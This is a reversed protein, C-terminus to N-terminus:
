VKLDTTISVSRVVVKNRSGIEKWLQDTAGNSRIANEDGLDGLENSQKQEAEKRNLDLVQIIEENLANLLSSLFEEADEQKGKLCENNIRGLVDYICKPEFPEVRPLDAFSISSGNRYRKIVQESPMFHTFFRAFSDLIPTSTQERFLYPLDGLERMFNYFPPCCLLAQLTANIYCYNGHNAFGRPILFPLSHKGRYDKLKRALKRAVSDQEASIVTRNNGSEISASFNNRKKRSAESSAVTAASSASLSHEFDKNNFISASDTALDSQVPKSVISLSKARNSRFLDAWSRAGGNTDSDVKEQEETLNATTPEIEKVLEPDVETQIEDTVEQEAEREIEHDAEQKLEEQIEKEVSTSKKEIENERILIPDNSLEDDPENYESGNSVNELQDVPQNRQEIDGPVNESQSVFSKSTPENSNSISLSELAASKDFQNTAQDASADTFSEVVDERENSESEDENDENFFKYAPADSRLMNENYEFGNAACDRPDVIIHQPYTSHFQAKVQPDYENAHNHEEHPQQPSPPPTALSQNSSNMHVSAATMMPESPNLQLHTPMYNSHPPATHYFQPPLPVPFYIMHPQSPFAHNPPLQAPLYSASMFAAQQAHAASPYGAPVSYGAPMTSVSPPLNSNPAPALPIHPSQGNIMSKNSSHIESNHMMNMMEMMQAPPLQMELHGGNTMTQPHALHNTIAGPQNHPHSPTAMQGLPASTPFAAAPYGYFPLKSIPQGNPMAYAPSAIFQPYAPMPVAVPRATNNHAANMYAQDPYAAMQPAYEPCNEPMMAVAYYPMPHINKSHYMPPIANHMTTNQAALACLNPPYDKRANKREHRADGNYEM